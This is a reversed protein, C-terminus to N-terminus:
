EQILVFNLELIAAIANWLLEISAPAQMVSMFNHLARVYM